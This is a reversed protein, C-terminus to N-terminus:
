FHIARSVFFFIFINIIIFNRPSYIKYISRKGVEYVTVMRRIELIRSFIVSLMALFEGAQVCGYLVNSDGCADEM